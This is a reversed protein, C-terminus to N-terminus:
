LFPFISLVPAHRPPLLLGHPSQSASLQIGQLAEGLINLLHLPSVAAASIFVDSPHPHAPYTLCRSSIPVSIFERFCVRGFFHPTGLNSM